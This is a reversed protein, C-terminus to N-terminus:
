HQFIESYTVFKEIQGRVNTAHLAIIDKSHFFSPIMSFIFVLGQM